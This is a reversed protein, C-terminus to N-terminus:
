FLIGEIRTGFKKIMRMLVSDETQDIRRDMERLREQELRRERGFVKFGAM